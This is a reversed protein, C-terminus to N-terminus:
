AAEDSQRTLGAACAALRSRLGAPIQRRAKVRPYPLESQVKRGGREAANAFAMPEVGDLLSEAPAGEAFLICHTDLEIHYYTFVMPAAQERVVSVDNVLAGAQVLVRDVLMAHGPSVLLDRAPVNKALAGARIRVPLLHVPDASRRSVLQHGIWRAPHLTRVGDRLTVLMDGARLDEVAVEGHETLIRTGACYCLVISVTGVATDHYKDSVTYTFTDTTGTAPATYILDGGNLTVTGLTGTTGAASLTLTDGAIGPTDLALLVGTLDISDGLGVTVHVNGATPGPDITVTVTGSATDGLQDKVAYSITDPGTAPATYSVANLSGLVVSGHLATVSTLTETDGSLGSTILGAILTKLSVTQGHGVTDAGNAASPGPDVALTGAIVASKDGFQDSVQYSFAVNGSDGTPAAFKVTGGSLTVANAPGSIESLTLTDGTLGPTVGGISVTAGHAVKEGSTITSTVSPGPDVALTGSIIASKDGLQDSVQYSFAVNGSDGTPAAFKITGGSLTVAGAPGSIESLTLTDGTLGPAVTAIAVTTGHKVKEGATTTSTVSPGPDVALTGSIVASKDGFQDSVQYSFAVKGSAGTPATFEVTTGSLTVAGAPGSIESLTLTDGTLGPTATAINVTNAHAVTEGATTKSTVSPGPDDVEQLLIGTGQADKVLSFDHKGAPTAAVGVATLTNVTFSDSVTLTTGSLTATTKGSVFGLGTLDIADGFGFGDITNSFIHSSLAALAISLTPTGSVFDITGTGAAGLATLRLTGTNELTTGGTYTNAASLTLRGAGNLVISGAGANTGTGGSGTQDAIIGGVTITQGAAPAFGVAQNGQIFLGNGFAEGDTAGTGATVTGANLVSPGAITLSGGQQVFIDGGAGLGGGGGPGSGIGLGQVGHAGAGGGFGGAGGAGGGGDNGGAGGGGGFGGNGGRGGGGSGAGGAGGAGGFGGDGGAGASAGAGGAGGGGGGGFGAAGGLGGADGGYGGRSGGGAAAAIGGGGGGEFSGGGAGGGGGSAGGDGGSAHYGGGDGGGTAGPVIGAGGPAGSDIGGGESGGNGGIGGGGGNYGYRYGGSGGLGGGGGGGVSAFTYYHIAGDGGQAADHSFTVSDLTVVGASAVFLGGGLGAGGGGGTQGNGGQAAASAITLDDVTVHGAYVFLGRETGGGNLTDGNGVIDLTVGAHLNIAELATGDLAINAGLTITVTGATIVSDAAVIAADLSGISSVTTDM